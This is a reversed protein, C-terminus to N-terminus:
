TDENTKDCVDDTQIESVIGPTVLESRCEDGSDRQQYTRGLSTNLILLQDVKWSMQSTGSLGRHSMFFARKMLGIFDFDDLM